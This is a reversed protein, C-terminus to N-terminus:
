AASADESSATDKGQDRAPPTTPFTIETTEMKHLQIQHYKVTGFIILLTLIAGNIICSTIFSAPNSEPEPLLGFRTRGVYPSSPMDETESRPPILRGSATHGAIAPSLQM